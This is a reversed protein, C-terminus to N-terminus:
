VPEEEPPTPPAPAEQEDGVTVAPAPISDAQASAADIASQMVHGAIRQRLSAAVFQGADTGQAAAMQQLTAYVSVPLYITIPRVLVSM